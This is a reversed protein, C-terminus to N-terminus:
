EFIVFKFLSDAFVQLSLWGIQQNNYGFVPSNFDINYFEQRVLIDAFFRDKTAVLYTGWFPVEFKSDNLAASDKAKDSLYGATTGLHLNWGNMGASSSRLM